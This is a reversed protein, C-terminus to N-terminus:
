SASSATCRPTRAAPVARQAGDRRGGPRDRGNAGGAGAQGAGRVGPRGGSALSAGRRDPGPGAGARGAAGRRARRDHLRGLPRGADRARGRPADLLRELDEAWLEISYPGPPRSSRGAGRQDYAVARHGREECAALQGWWSYASGGLGHVFVVTSGEPSAPGRDEYALQVDELEIREGMSSRALRTPCRAAGAVASGDHSFRRRHPLLFGRGHALGASRRPRAFSSVSSAPRRRPSSSANLVSTSSCPGNRIRSARICTGLRAIASSTTCSVQSATRFPISRKSPRDDSRVQIALMRSLMARVRPRRSRRTSGNEKRKRRRSSPRRRARPPGRGSGTSEAIGVGARPGARGGLPGRGLLAEAGLLRAPDQQLRDGLEGDALALHDGQAVDAAPRGRLRAVGQPEALGVLSHQEM